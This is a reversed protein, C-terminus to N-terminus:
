YDMKLKFVKKNDDKTGSLYIGSESQTYAINVKENYRLEGSYEAAVYKPTKNESANLTIDDAIDFYKTNTLHGNIDTFSYPVTMSYISDTEAPKISKPFAYENGTVTEEISIGEAEPFIMKRTNMDMLMWLASGRIIEEGSEDTVSYYRVGGLVPNNNILRELAAVDSQYIDIWERTTHENGVAADILLTNMKENSLFFQTSMNISDVNNTISDRRREMTARTFSVNERVTSQEMNYFVIGGLIAVPFIVFLLVIGTLRINLKQFNIM